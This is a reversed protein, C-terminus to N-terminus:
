PSQLDRKLVLIIHKEKIQHAEAIEGTYREILGNIAKTVEPLEGGSDHFGLVGSPVLNYWVLHFDSLVYTPHHNGDIFGFIFKQERSFNVKKSDEKITIVNNLGRITEQYVEMQPRGGLLVQYIDCMRVGNIDQTQDCCPDFVDVCYVNKHYKRAFRALKATGGGMFAGIEILDGRLKHHLGRKKIFAILVDYGVFDNDPTKAKTLRAWLRIMEQRM